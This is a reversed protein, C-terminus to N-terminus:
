SGQKQPVKKKKRYNNDQKVIFEMELAKKLLRRATSEPVGIAIATDIFESYSFHPKLQQLINDLRHFPHMRRPKVKTEPLSTSLLLSHEILTGVIQMATDFDEDTCRYEKAYRYDAWKRFVTLIAALRTALLGHRFVIAQTTESGEVKVNNLWETFQETHRQWQSPTFTVLTPFKLLEKHMELLQSGLNRFYKRLDIGDTLPACSKWVGAAELTYFGFRSQLGDEQSHFFALFQEQTGSINIALRPHSVVVPAGANKYSFSIVEHQAGKCLVDVYEGCEQNFSSTFSNIETSHMCCGCAGSAALHEILRTKSTTATLLLHQYKPEEPKLEIDPAKHTRKANNCENDWALLCAEYEKKLKRNNREYYEEIPELLNASYAMVGKGSGAPAIVSQYFHPSFSAKNYQFTVCPFAASCSNLAGLLLLDRERQGNAYKVCDKLLQPLHEFIEEPIFPSAARLLNNNELVEEVNDTDNEEIQPSKLSHANNSRQNEGVTQQANREIYQYGSLVRSRIDAITFDAGAYHRAFLSVIDELETTSFGKSRAVRGLKLALDNRQGRVFPNRHEFDNVFQALFGPASLPPVITTPTGNEAAHAQRDTQEPQSTVNNTAQPATDERPMEFVTADPNYYAEPDWSYFCPQTLIKCKADYPHHVHKSVANGVAAYLRQYDHEVDELAVRVMVKVGQSVSRYSLRVYPLEKTLEFIQQTCNDPNDIDLDICLIGSHQTLDKVAHGGQCVGAPVICPLNDKIAQARAEHGPQSKLQRYQQVREKYTDNCINKYYEQLTITRSKKSRVTPFESVVEDDTKQLAM